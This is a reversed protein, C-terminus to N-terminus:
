RIDREAITMAFDIRLPYAAITYLPRATADPLLSPSAGWKSSADKHYSIIM